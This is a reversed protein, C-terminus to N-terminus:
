FREELQFARVRKKFNAEIERLEIEKQYANNFKKIEEIETKSIGMTHGYVLGVIFSFLIFAYTHMRAEM